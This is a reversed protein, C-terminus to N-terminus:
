SMRRAYYQLLTARPTTASTASVYRKSFIPRELIHSPCGPRGRHDQHAQPRLCNIETGSKYTFAEVSHEMLADQLSSRLLRLQETVDSGTNESEYRVIMDEVLDLRKIIGKAFVHVTGWETDVAKSLTKKRDRLRKIETQQHKAHKESEAKAALAAALKKEAGTNKTQFERLEGVESVLKQHEKSIARFRQERVELENTQEKLFACREDM